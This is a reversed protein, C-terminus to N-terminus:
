KNKETFLEMAEIYEQDNNLGVLFKENNEEVEKRVFFDTSDNENVFYVYKINTNIIIDMVLYKKGDIVLESNDVM